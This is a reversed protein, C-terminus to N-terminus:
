GVHIGSYCISARISATFCMVVIALQHLQLNPLHGAAHFGVRGLDTVPAVFGMARNDIRRPEIGTAGRGGGGKGVQMLSFASATRHMRLQHFEKSSSVAVAPDGVPSSQAGDAAALTLMRLKRANTHQALKADPRLGRMSKRSLLGHGSGKFTRDPSLVAPKPLLHPRACFRQPHFPFSQTPQSCVQPLLM